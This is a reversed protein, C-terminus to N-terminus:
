AFAAAYDVWNQASIVQQVSPDGASSGFSREVSVSVSFGFFLIHISITLTARGQIHHKHKGKVISTQYSLSLNVDISISIIGLVSVQGGIDVFGTVDSSTGTLQFYIGAMIHIGGSAVVIDFSFMGGFELAGEVMRVGATDVILHIFGGGGICEVTLLFPTSRSAFGFEFAPKGDLYPLDVAGLFSIHVLSFVGISIPPLGLTYAVRLQTPQLQISPGNAFIGPPLISALTQVFSLPGIFTIPKASPLKAVVVPKQGNKSSFSLSNIKLAIVDALTIQFNSLSGSISTSPPGGKLDRLIQATVNLASAPIFVVQLISHSDGQSLLPKPNWQIKTLVGTKTKPTPVSQSRIEPMNQGANNGAPILVQLPVTGFLKASIDFFQTPDMRGAAADDPSGAVVGKRASLATPSLNPVAIGGAQSAAFALVPPPTPIVVYVGANADLGGALYPQYFEVDIPTNTGLLQEIAPVAVSAQEVFPIFPPNPYPPQSPVSQTAFYLGDTKLVTDGLSPDAYAVNQGKVSCLRNATATGTRYQTLLTDPQTESAGMFILAGLFNITKGDLDTATVHFPFGAGGVSIWFSPSQPGFYAPPDIDPTVLTKITVNALFPMERGAFQFTAAAYSKERERVVIYMHQRMYATPATVVGGDPPVVKRETVKILVARHGFPYLFGEYVIRVYHDRGQTAIHDWETLDLGAPITTWSGRSDLWGGLTSLFLRHAQIPQPVIPTPIGAADVSSYGTAASLTVIQARDRPSMAALFPGNDTIPPLTGQYTFDPSWIARVAVPKSESADTLSITTGNQTKVAKARAMRTHWLATRGAYTEPVTANIWGTGAGPSLILRYPIELATQTDDPPATPGSTVKGLATPSVVLSLQTWDLLSAIDFPIEAVGAPLQFVLRSSGAMRVGISGAASLPDTVTPPQQAVGPTGRPNTGVNPSVEFFAQEIISQPQFGVILLAPATKKIVVLKPSQPDSTDLQLNRADIQLFVLDDPRLIEFDM